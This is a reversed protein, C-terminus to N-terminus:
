RVSRSRWSSDEKQTAVCVRLNGGPAISPMSYSDLVLDLPM